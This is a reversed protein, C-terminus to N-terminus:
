SWRSEVAVLVALVELGDRRSDLPQYANNDAHAEWDGPRGTRYIRLHVAGSKDRVLVGDGPRATADRDFTVFTGARVRPAMADDPMQVRFHPPLDAKRKIALIAEWATSIITEVTAEDLSVSHALPSSAIGAKRSFKTAEDTAIKKPLRGTALWTPSVGLHRAAADSNAASLSKTEGLVAKRIAQYSVDLADALQGIDVGADKMAETLRDKYPAVMTADITGGDCNVITASM